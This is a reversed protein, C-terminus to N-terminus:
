QSEKGIAINAIAATHFGWRWGITDPVGGVLIGVGFGISQGCDMPFFFALNRLKGPSFDQSIISTASRLCM